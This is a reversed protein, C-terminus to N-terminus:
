HGYNCGVKYTKGDPAKVEGDFSGCCGGDKATNYAALEQPLTVDAWRLNDICEEDIVQMYIYKTLWSDIKSKTM